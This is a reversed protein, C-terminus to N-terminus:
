INHFRKFAAVADPKAYVLRGELTVVNWSPDKDPGYDQFGDPANITQWVERKGLWEDYIDLTESTPGSQDPAGQKDPAKVQQSAKAQKAAERKKRAQAKKKAQAKREAEAKKRAAEAEAKKVESVDKLRNRIFAEPLALQGAWGRVIYGDPNDLQGMILPDGEILKALFINQRATPRCQNVVDVVTEFPLRVEAVIAQL